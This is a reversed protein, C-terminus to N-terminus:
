QPTPVVLVPCPSHRLVRHAVSGLLAGAWPGRGTSGLCILDAKVDRAVDLINWAVGHPGEPRVVCAGIGVEADALRRVAGDTIAQTAADPETVAGFHSAVVTIIHVVTVVAETAAAIEAAHGVAADSAPSGDVAVLVRRIPAPFASSM